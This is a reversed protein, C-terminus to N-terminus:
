LMAPHHATPSCQDRGQQALPLLRPDACQLLTETSLFKILTASFRRASPSIYAKFPAQPCVSQLSLRSRSRPCPIFSADSTWHTARTPTGCGTRWPRPQVPSHQCLERSLRHQQPHQVEAHLARLLDPLQAAENLAPIVVSILISGGRHCATQPRPRDDARGM